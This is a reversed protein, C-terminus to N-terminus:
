TEKALKERFAEDVWDQLKKDAAIAAVRVQVWLKEDVKLSTHKVKSLTVKRRTVIRSM